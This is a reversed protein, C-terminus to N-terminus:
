FRSGTLTVDAYSWAAKFQREVEEAERVKEQARLSKVLGFLAWGNHPHRVLDARYEEEADGYRGAALLVDGLYHRVPIPWYPPEIYPLDEEMKVADRLSAIAEDYRGRRAAIEGALLREAIKIMVREIKGEDTRPRGVQKTSAALVAMEAEAEPLRGTATLAL